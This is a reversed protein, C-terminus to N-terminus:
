AISEPLVYVWSPPPEVSLRWSQDLKRRPLSTTYGNTCRATAPSPTFYRKITSNINGIASFQDLSVIKQGLPAFYVESGGVIIMLNDGMVFVKNVPRNYIGSEVVLHREGDYVVLGFETGIYIRDGAFAVSLIGCASTIGADKIESMNVTKGNDYLLDINGNAYATLLYKRDKNYAIFEVPDVDSLRNSSNYSYCENDDDSLSFLSPSSLMYTREPTEIIQSFSDGSRFLM